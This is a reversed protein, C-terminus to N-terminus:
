PILRSGTVGTLYHTVEEREKEPIEEPITVAIYFLTFYVTKVMDIIISWLSYIVVAVAIIIAAHAFSGTLILVSGGVGITLLVFIGIIYGRILDGVFDIGLVGVLAGPVNKKINKIDSLADGV